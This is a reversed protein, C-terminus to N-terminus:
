PRWSVCDEVPHAQPLTLHHHPPLPPAPPPRPRLPRRVLLSLLLTKLREPPSAVQELVSHRSSEIMWGCDRSVLCRDGGCWELRGRGGRTARRTEQLHWRAGGERGGDLEDETVMFRRADHETATDAMRRRGMSASPAPTPASAATRGDSTGLAAMRPM